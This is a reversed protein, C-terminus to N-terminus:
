AATDPQDTFGAPEPEDIDVYDDDNRLLQQKSTSLAASEVYQYESTSPRPEACAEQDARSTDYEYDHSASVPYSPEAYEVEVPGTTSKGATSGQM